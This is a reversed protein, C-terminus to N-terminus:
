IVLSPLKRAIQCGDVLIGAKALESEEDVLLAELENRALQVAHNVEFALVGSEEFKLSQKAVVELISQFLIATALVAMSRLKKLFGKLKTSVFGHLNNSISYKIALMLPIWNQLLVTVDKRPHNAFRTGHVKPFKYIHVGLVTATDKFHRHFKGSQKMFYYLDIMMKKVEQFAKQTM